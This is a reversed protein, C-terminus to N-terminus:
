WLILVLAVFINLRGCSAQLAYNAWGPSFWIFDLLLCQKEPDRWNRCPHCRSNDSFRSWTRKVLLCFISLLLFVYTKILMAKFCSPRSSCINKNKLNLMPDRVHETLFWKMATLSRPSHNHPRCWRRTLQLLRCLGCASQLTLNAFFLFNVFNRCCVHYIVKSCRDGFNEKLRGCLSISLLELALCRVYHSQKPIRYM